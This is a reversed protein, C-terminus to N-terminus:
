GNLKPRSTPLVSSTKKKLLSKGASAAIVAKIGSSDTPFYVENISYRTGPQIIYKVSAKKGKIITESTAASRLWGEDFLRNTLKGASTKSSVESLLVPPEGVKYKLKYIIGSPKKPEKFINFILLRYKIGLLSTNPKPKISNSLETKIERPFSSDKVQISAGTYLKDGAPVNKTLSCSAMMVYVFLTLAFGALGTHHIIKKM